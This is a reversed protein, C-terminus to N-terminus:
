WKFFHKTASQEVDATLSAFTFLPDMAELIHSRDYEAHCHGLVILHQVFVLGRHSNTNKRVLKRAQCNRELQKTLKVKAKNIIHYINKILLSAINHHIVTCTCFSLHYKVSTFNTVISYNLFGLFQAKGANIM